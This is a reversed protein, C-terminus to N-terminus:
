ILDDLNRMSVSARAALITAIRRVRDRNDLEGHVSKLLHEVAARGMEYFQCDMTTMAPTMVDVDLRNGFAMVSIDEPISFKMNKLIKMAQCAMSIGRCWLATPRESSSFIETIVRVFEDAYNKSNCVRLYSIKMNEPRVSEFNFRVDQECNLTTTLGPQRLSSREGWMVGFHRHNFSRLYHLVGEATQRPDFIVAPLESGPLECGMLIQPISKEALLSQLPLDVAAGRDGVHIIGCYNRLDALMQEIEEAPADPPPLLLPTVLFGLELARDVLGSYMQVRYQCNLDSLRIFSYFAEPIIMGIINSRHRCVAKYFRSNLPREILGDQCLRAYVKRVTHSSVQLEEALPQINPLRFNGGSCRLEQALADYIVPVTDNRKGSHIQHKLRSFFETM